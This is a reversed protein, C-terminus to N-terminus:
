SVRFNLVTHVTVRWQDMGQTLVYWDMDGWDLVTLDLKINKEWRTTEKRRAEEGFDEICQQKEGHKCYERNV